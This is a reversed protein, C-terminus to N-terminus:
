KRDKKKGLSQEKVKTAKKGIRDRLYYLRSRCVKGKRVVKIEKIMPSHLPFNREVGVGGFSIKRVTFSERMGGHARDICIGEFMQTREKEGEKVRVFVKLTDGARFAPIDKAIKKLEAREIQQIFDM